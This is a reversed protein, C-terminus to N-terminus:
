ETQCLWEKVDNLLVNLRGLDGVLDWRNSGDLGGIKVFHNGREIVAARITDITTLAKAHEELFRTKCATEKTVM